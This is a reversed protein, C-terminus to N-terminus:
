SFSCDKGKTYCYEAFIEARLAMPPHLRIRLKRHHAVCFQMDAKQHALEASMLIINGHFTIECFPIKLILKDPFHTM